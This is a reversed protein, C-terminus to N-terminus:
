LFVIKLLKDRFEAVRAEHTKRHSDMKKAADDWRRFKLHWEFFPDKEFIQCEEPTMPGGQEILSSRSGKSLTNFYDPNAAVLYKKTLVHNRVLSCTRESYGFVNRLYNAGIHEHDTIGVQEGSNVMSVEKEMGLLHGMDHLLAALLVDKPAGEKEAEECCQLAHEIQTISEGIYDREGYEEYLTVVARVSM